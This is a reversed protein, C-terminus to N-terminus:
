DAFAYMVPIDVVRCQVPTSAPFSFQWNRIGLEAAAGFTARPLAALIDTSIVKGNGDLRARIYAGGAYSDRQEQPPFAIGQPGPPGLRIIRIDECEEPQGSLSVLEGEQWQPVGGPRVIRSGTKVAPGKVSEYVARSANEWAALAAWNLDRESKPIGYSRRAEMAEGVAESYQRLRMSSQTRLVLLKTRIVNNGPAVRATEALGRDILDRALRPLEFELSIQSSDAYSLALLFDSWGGNDLAVSAKNFADLHRKSKSAMLDSYALLYAAESPEVSGPYLAALAVARRAPAQAENIKNILGLTWAANFALGPLNPNNGNWVREGTQWALMAAASASTFDSRAIAAEYARYHALPDNSLAPVAPPMIASPAAAGPPTNQMRNGTTQAITTSGAILMSVLAVSFIYFKQPM